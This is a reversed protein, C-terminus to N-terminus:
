ARASACCNIAAYSSGSAPSATLRRQRRPHTRGSTVAPPCLLLETRGFFPPDDHLIPIWGIHVPLGELADLGHQAIVPRFLQVGLGGANGTVPAASSWPMGQHPSHPCELAGLGFNLVLSESAANMSGCICYRPKLRGRLKPRSM